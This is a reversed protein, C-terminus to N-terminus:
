DRRGRLIALKENCELANVDSTVGDRPGKPKGIPVPRSWVVLKLGGASLSNRLTAGAANITTKAAGAVMGNAAMTTAGGPVVYISGRVRRGNRVVGTNLNVKPGTAM